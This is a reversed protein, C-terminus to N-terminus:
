RLSGSTLTPKSDDVQPSEEAFPKKEYSSTEPPPPVSPNVRKETASDTQIADLLKEKEDPKSDPLLRSAKELRYKAFKRAVYESLNLFAFRSAELAIGAGGYLLRFTARGLAPNLQFRSSNLVVFAFLTGVLLHRLWTRDFREASLSGFGGVFDWAPLEAWATLWGLCQTVSLFFVGEFFAFFVPGNGDSRSDCRLLLLSAVILWASLGFHNLLFGGVYSFPLGWFSVGDVGDPAAMLNYATPKLDDHYLLGFAVFLGISIRLLASLPPRKKKRSWRLLRRPENSFPRFAFRFERRFGGVPFDSLFCGCRLSIGASFIGRIRNPLAPADPEALNRFLSNARRGNVM